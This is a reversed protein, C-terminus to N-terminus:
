NLGKLKLYFLYGLMMTGRLYEGIELINRKHVDKKVRKGTDDRRINAFIDMIALADRNLQDDRVRQDRTQRTVM